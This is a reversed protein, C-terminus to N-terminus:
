SWVPWAHLRTPTYSALHAGPARTQYGNEYLLYRLGHYDRISGLFLWIRHSEIYSELETALPTGGPLQQRTDYLTLDRILTLITM